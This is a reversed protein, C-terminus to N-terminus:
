ENEKNDDAAPAESAPEGDTTQTAAEGAPEEALEDVAEPVESAPLDDSAEASPEIAPEEAADQAAPPEPTATEDTATEDQAPAATAAEQTATGAGGRQELIGGLQTALGGVLANLTRALGSIPTAVLGVLQGYLVDRSPLRSISTMEDASLAAGDMVGGKFALLHTARAFDALSRAAAAGDGRVFTLATPGNLLTKLLEAGAKDAARETLSNKVVRLTADAARLRGRLARAQEVTVGRYDVAFIAQSESINAAIEDIVAAKQDRNM